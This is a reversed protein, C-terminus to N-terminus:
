YYVIIERYAHQTHKWNRPYATWVTRHPHFGHAESGWIDSFSVVTAERLLLWFTEGLSDKFSYFHIHIGMTESGLCCWIMLVVELWQGVGQQVPSCPFILKVKSALFWPPQVFERHDWKFIFMLAATFLFFSVMIMHSEGHTWVQRCSATVVKYTNQCYFCGRQRTRRRPHQQDHIIRKSRVM